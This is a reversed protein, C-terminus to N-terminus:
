CGRPECCIPAFPSHWCGAGNRVRWTPWRRIAACGKLHSRQVRILFKACPQFPTLLRSPCSGSGRRSGPRSPHRNTGRGRNRPTSKQDSPLRVGLRCYDADAQKNKFGLGEKRHRQACGRIESTLLIHLLLVLMGVFGPQLQKHSSM